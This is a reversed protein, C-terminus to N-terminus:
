CFQNNNRSKFFNNSCKARKQFVILVIISNQNTPELSTTYFKKIYYNYVVSPAILKDGELPNIWKDGM